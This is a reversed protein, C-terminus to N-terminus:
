CPHIQHHSAVNVNQWQALIDTCSTVQSYVSCLHVLGSLFRVVLIHLCCSPGTAETAFRTRHGTVVACSFVILIFDALFFFVFREAARTFTFAQQFTQLTRPDDYKCMEQCVHCSNQGFRRERKLPSIYHHSQFRDDLSWEDLSFSDGRFILSFSFFCQLRCM